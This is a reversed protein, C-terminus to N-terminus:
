LLKILKETPVKLFDGNAPNLKFAHIQPQFDLDYTPAVIEMVSDGDLDSAFLPSTKNNVFMQGDAKADVNFSVVQSNPKNLDYIEIWIKKSSRIKLVKYKLGEINLNTELSALVIREEPYLFNKVKLQWKPTLALGVSLGILLTSLTYLIISYLSFNKM